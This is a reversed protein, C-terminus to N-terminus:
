EAVPECNPTEDRGGPKSIFPATWTHNGYKEETYAAVM